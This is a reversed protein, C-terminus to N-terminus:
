DRICYSDSISLFRRVFRRCRAMEVRMRNNDHRLRDIEYQLVQARLRDIKEDDTDLRTFIQEFRDIEIRDVTKKLSSHSQELAAMQTALGLYSEPNKHVKEMREINAALSGLSETMHSVSKKIAEMMREEFNNAVLRPEQIFLEKEIRNITDEVDSKSESQIETDNTPDLHTIDGNDEFDPTHESM